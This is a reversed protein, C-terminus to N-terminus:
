NFIYKSGNWKLYKICDDSGALNCFSGHLTLKFDSSSFNNSIVQVIQAYDNYVIDFSGNTSAIILYASGATGLSDRILIYDASGDGNFDFERDVYYGDTAVGKSQLFSQINKALRAGSQMPINSDIGSNSTMSNGTAGEVSKIPKQYADVEPIKVQSSSFKGYILNICGGDFSDIIAKLSIVDGPKLNVLRNIEQQNAPYIEARGCFSNMNNVAMEPALLQIVGKNITDKLSNSYYESLELRVVFYDRIKEVNSIKLDWNILKGAYSKELLEKQVNTEANKMQGKLSAVSVTSIEASAQKIDVEKLKADFWGYHFGVGVLILVLGILGGVSEEFKLNSM